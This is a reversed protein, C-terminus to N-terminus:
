LLNYAGSEYLIYLGLFIFIIPIFYKGNKEIQKAILKRTTLKYGVFCWIAILMSFTIFIIVTEIINSTAFLPIYIAINDGGNGITIAAVKLTAGGFAAKNQKDIIPVDEEQDSKNISLLGKVGIYIPILGLLGIWPVPVFFLGLAGIFSIVTLSIIGIFQGVVIHKIRFTQHNVQSFLAM